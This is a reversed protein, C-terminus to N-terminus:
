YTKWFKRVIPCQIQSCKQAKKTTSQCGGTPFVLPQGLIDESICSSKLRRKFFIKGLWSFWALNFKWILEDIKKKIDISNTEQCAQGTGLLLGSSERWLWMVPLISMLGKDRKRGRRGWRVNKAWGPVFSGPSLQLSTLINKILSIFKRKVHSWRSVVRWM